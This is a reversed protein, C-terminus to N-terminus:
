QLEWAHGIGAPEGNTVALETPTGPTTTATAAAAPGSTPTTLSAEVTTPTPGTNAAVTSPPLQQTGERLSPLAAQVARQVADEVLRQLDGTPQTPPPFPYSPPHPPPPWGLGGYPMTAAPTPLQWGPQWSWDRSTLTARDVAEPSKDQQYVSKYLM